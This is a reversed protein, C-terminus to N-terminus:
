VDFDDISLEDEYELENDSDSQDDSEMEEDNKDQSAFHEALRASQELMQEAHDHLPLPRVIYKAWKSTQSMRVIKKCDEFSYQNLLIAFEKPWEQEWSNPIFNVNLNKRALTFFLKALQISEITHEPQPSHQTSQINLQSKPTQQEESARHTTTTETDNSLEMTVPYNTQTGNVNDLACFGTKLSLGNGKGLGIGIGEYGSSVKGTGTLYPSSIRGALFATLLEQPVEVGVAEKFRQSPAPLRGRKEVGIFYGWLKGDEARWRFLLKVREFEQLMAEVHRLNIDPRNFSYAQSWILRADAEFTGDVRMLPILNALEGRFKSPEVLSLKGSRWIGEGDVIRKPM